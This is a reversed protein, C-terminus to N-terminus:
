ETFFFFISEIKWKKELFNEFCIFRFIDYYIYLPFMINSVQYQSQIFNDLNLSRRVYVAVDVEGVAFYTLANASNFLDVAEFRIVNHPSRIDADSAFVTLIPEGLIQDGFITEEYTTPQFM